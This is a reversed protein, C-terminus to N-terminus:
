NSIGLAKYVVKNENFNLFNWLDIVVKKDKPKIKQMKKFINNNYCVFIIDSKNFFTKINDYYHIKSKIIFTDNINNEEYVIIKYNKILKKIIQIGPSFDTITTNTKYAIGCIGITPKKNFLKLSEKFIKLYRQIQFQNIKEVAIPIYNKANVKKLYSSFNLSDRPFCPGSYSGGLGLYKKGIRSDSGVTNIIKSVNIGKQHDAIQSLTNSFSIKMTIFSNISIKSIEAEKLNLFKLRKLKKKYIKSYLKKLYIHGYSLDSGIIVLESNIVNEYISGLAILHPNYTVIFEKGHVLQFNDELFKVFLSCSGPNVTSTINIVYKKKSKLYKGIKKLTEFIYKNDFDHNKKSPTPLVLIIASTEKIAKETNELFTFNKKNKNILENLKPEINKVNSSIDKKIKLNKDYGYVKFGANALIQSFLLGLKGLGVCYIIEPNNM